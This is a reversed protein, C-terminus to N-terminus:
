SAPAVEELYAAGIDCVPQYGTTYTLSPAQPVVYVPSGGALTSFVAWGVIDDNDQTAAPFTAAVSNSKRRAAAAGWTVAQRAYGPDDSETVTGAAISTIATLAGLYGVSTGAIGWIDDLEANVAATTKNSAM